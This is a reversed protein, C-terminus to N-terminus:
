IDRQAQIKNEEIYEKVVACHGCYESYFLIIDSDEIVVDKEKDNLFIVFFTILFALLLITSIIVKKM